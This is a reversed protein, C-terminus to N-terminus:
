TTWACCPGSTSPKIGLWLCNEVLLFYSGCSGQILAGVRQAEFPCRQSADQSEQSTGDFDVGWQECCGDWCYMM